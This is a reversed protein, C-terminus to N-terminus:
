GLLDDLSEGYKEFLKAQDILWNSANKANKENVAENFNVSQQTMLEETPNLWFQRIDDYIAHVDRGQGRQLVAAEAATYPQDMYKWDLTDYFLQTLEPDGGTLLKTYGSEDAMEGFHIGMDTVPRRVEPTRSLIGKRELSERVKVPDANLLEKNISRIRSPDGHTPFEMIERYLHHLDTGSKHTSKWDLINYFEQIKEPDDGIVAKTFGNVDAQEAWHSGLETAPRRIKPTPSTKVVTEVVDDTIGLLSKVTNKMSGLGSEIGRGAASVGSAIGRGAAGAGSTIGRGAKPLLSRGAKFATKGGLLGAGFIRGMPILTDKHAGQAGFDEGTAILMDKLANVGGGLSGSPNMGLPDLFREVYKNGGTIRPGEPIRFDKVAGVVEGLWGTYPEQPVPAPQMPRNAFRPDGFDRSLVEPNRQQEAAVRRIVDDLWHQRSGTNMHYQRGDVM